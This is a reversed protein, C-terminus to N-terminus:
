LKKTRMNIEQDIRKLEDPDFEQRCVFAVEDHTYIERGLVQEHRNIWLVGPNNPHIGRAQCWENFMSKKPAVVYITKKLSKQQLYKHVNKEENMNGIMQTNKNM